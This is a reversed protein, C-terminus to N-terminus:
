MYDLIVIAVDRVNVVNYIIRTTEKKIMIKTCQYKQIHAMIDDNFDDVVYKINYWYNHITLEDLNADYRITYGISDCHKYMKYMNDMQIYICSDDDDVYAIIDHSKYKYLDEELKAIFDYYDGKNIQIKEKFKLFLIIKQKNSLCTFWQDLHVGNFNNTTNFITHKISILSCSDHVNINETIVAM